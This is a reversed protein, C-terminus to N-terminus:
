TTAGKWNEQKYNASVKGDPASFHGALQPLCFAWKLITGADHFPWFSKIKVIEGRRIRRELEKKADPEIQGISMLCEGSDIIQNATQANV